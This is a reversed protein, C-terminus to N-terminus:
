PNLKKVKMDDFDVISTNNIVPSGDSRNYGPRYIGFKIHPRACGMLRTRLPRDDIFVKNNIYIDYSMDVLDLIMKFNVWNGIIDEITIATDGILIGQDFKVMVLPTGRCGSDSQHIQFFNERSGRFGKMFRVQYNIEYISYRHLKGSQKLESREWFSAGHRSRRDTNCGGKQGGKLQFRLFKNGDEEITKLTEKPLGCNDYFGVDWDKDIGEMGGTTQCGSLILFSLIVFIKKMSMIRHLNRELTFNRLEKLCILYVDKYIGNAVM